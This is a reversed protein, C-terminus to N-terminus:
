SARKQERYRRQREAGSERACTKCLRGGTSPQIYTNEADYEHGKPCHTKRANVAQISTGRMVNELHTVPELHDPRVCLTTRCLHDLDLGDPISGVVLMYAVRHARQVRGEHQFAGYRGDGDTAGTWLWCGDSRAVKAWFREEVPGFRDVIPKTPRVGKRHFYVAHAHCM